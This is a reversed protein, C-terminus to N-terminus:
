SRQLHRCRRYPVCGCISYADADSIDSPALPPMPLAANRLSALYEDFPQATHALASGMGGLANPGHCADCQKQHWLRAGDLANGTLISAPRVPSAPATPAPYTPHTLVPTGGGYCGAVALALGALFLGIVLRVM